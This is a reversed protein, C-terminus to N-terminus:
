FRTYYGVSVTHHEFGTDRDEFAYDLSIGHREFLQLVVGAFFSDIDISDAEGTSLIDSAEAGHAVGGRVTISDTLDYNGRVVYSNTDEDSFHFTRYYKASVYFEDDFYHYLEATLIDVSGDPFNLRGYGLVVSSAYPLEYSLESLIFTKPSFDSNPAGGFGIHLNLKEM